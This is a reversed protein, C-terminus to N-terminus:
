HLVVLSFKLHKLFMVLHFKRHRLFMVLHSLLIFWGPGATVAAVGVTGSLRAVADAAFVSTAQVCDCCVDCTHVRSCTSTFTVDIQIAGIRLHM